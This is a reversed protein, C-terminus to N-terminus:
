EHSPLFSLVLTNRGNEFSYRPQSYREVLTVGLGGIEPAVVQAPRALPNYPHAADQYTITLNKDKIEAAIWVPEDCDHGYGHCVSNTFLEEIVLEVRLQEHRNLGAERCIAATHTILEGLSNLRATFQRTNFNM